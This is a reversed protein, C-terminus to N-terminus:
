RKRKRKKKKRSRLIIIPFGLLIIVVLLGLGIMWWIGAFGSRNVYLQYSGGDSAVLSSVTITYNGTSSPTFVFSIKRVSDPDSMSWAKPEIHAGGPGVVSLQFSGSEIDISTWFYYEKQEKLKMHYTDFSIINGLTERTYIFISHIKPFDEEPTLLLQKNNTAAFVLASPIIFLVIGSLAIIKQFTRKNM